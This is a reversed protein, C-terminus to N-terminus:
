WVQGFHWCVNLSSKFPYKAVLDRLFLGIQDCQWGDTRPPKELHNNVNVSYNTERMGSTLKTKIVDCAMIILESTNSCFSKCPTTPIAWNTFHDSRVGSIGLEFWTMWIKKTAKWLYHWNSPNSNLFWLHARSKFGHGSTLLGWMSGYAVALNQPVSLPSQGLVFTCGNM